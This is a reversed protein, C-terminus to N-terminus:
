APTVTSVDSVLLVPAGIFFFLSFDEGVACHTEVWGIDTANDVEHTFSLAHTRDSLVNPGNAPSDNCEAYRYKHYFPIEYELTPVVNGVTAAVGCHNRHYTTAGIFKVATQSKSLGDEAVVLSNAIEISQTGERAVRISAKNSSKTFASIKWRIGGRYGVYAHLFYQLYTLTCLNYFPDADVIPTLAGAVSNGYTRGPGVPCNFINYTTLMIQKRPVTAPTELLLVRHFNYRKLLSRISVVSEGFYVDSQKLDLTKPNGNLVYMVDQEPMNEQDTTFDPSFGSQALAPPGVPVDARSYSYFTIDSPAKVEFSDGASIYVNIDISAADIPAALSNLVHVEILGNVRSSSGSSAGLRTDQVHTLSTERYADEQTWNIEFTVDREEAIDIIHTFRNNTDTISGPNAATPEYVFMLRGRHFQSCVIQFRYRLSGTWFKFPRAIHGVPTMCYGTNAPTGFTMVPAVHPHVLVTYICGSSSLPNNPLNWFFTDIWAERKTVYSFAMQDDCPLGVTSPDITLEQKPDLSLKMIPDAGSYNALNGLPQPRYFQTDTLIAPRSFGFIKAVDSVANASIHTAKAFKGIYPINMFYTAFQALTSAPASILGNPRHEDKNKNEKFVTKKKKPAKVGSQAVAVAGVTLGAFKANTMWAFMTIEVPDTGSNAHKLENLEWIELVGMRNVTAPNTLDIYNGSTFFPWSIHQPQNTSPDIFVHPRQSYLTRLAPLSRSTGTSTKYNNCVVDTTPLINTNNNDFASPRCGVFMRGYHFPSGNVVIKIHLDGQLLKFTELKNKVKANNLFLKWPNIANHYTPLEGVGWIKAFIRVPRSMFTDLSDEAGVESVGFTPDELNEGIVLSYQDIADAFEMTTEKENSTDTTEVDVTKGEGSQAEMEARKSEHRLMRENLERRILHDVYQSADHSEPNHYYCHRCVCIDRGTCCNSQINSPKTKLKPKLSFM